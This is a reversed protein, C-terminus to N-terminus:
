VDKKNERAMKEVFFDKKISFIKEMLEEFKSVTMNYEEALSEIKRDRYRALAENTVLRDQWEKVYELTFYVELDPCWGTKRCALVERTGHVVKIWEHVEGSALMAERKKHEAKVQKNNKWVFIMYNVQHKLVVLLISCIAILGIIAMLSLMMAHEVPLEM